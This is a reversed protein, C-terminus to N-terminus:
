LVRNLSDRFVEFNEVHPVHGLANLKILRCNPIARATEEGLEPYDGLAAAHMGARERGLATRDREGLILTVPVKIRNFEHCVPQTFIMDTTLAMNKAYAPLRNSTLFLLEHENLLNDYDPKWEGHFYNEMMYRKLDQKTKALEKQNEDDVSSYPVKEKWDELGIPNELILRECRQPFMLAFRVALMGGMSHGLVVVTKCHLSDLLRATNLALQQFTFQYSQPQTSRGFGVQEPAVISYGKDLLFDATQKWYSSSFNKGHLLVVTKGNGQRPKRYVYAMELHQGQSEFPLYYLDTVQVHPSNFLQKYVGASTMLLLLFFSLIFYRM